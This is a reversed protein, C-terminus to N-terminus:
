RFFNCSLFICTTCLICHRIEESTKTDDNAKPRLSVIWLSDMAADKLGFAPPPPPPATLQAM